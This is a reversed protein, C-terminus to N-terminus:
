WFFGLLFVAEGTSFQFFLDGMGKGDVFSSTRFTFLRKIAAAGTPRTISHTLIVSVPLISHFLLLSTLDGSKGM